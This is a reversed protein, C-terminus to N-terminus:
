DTKKLGRLRGGASAGACGPRCLLFAHSILRKAPGTPDTAPELENRLDERPRATNRDLLPALKERIYSVEDEPHDHAPVPRGEPDEQPVEPEEQQRDGERRAPGPTM